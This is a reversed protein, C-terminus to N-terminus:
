NAAKILAELQAAQLTKAGDPSVDLRFTGVKISVRDGLALLEKLADSGQVLAFWAESFAAINILTLSPKLGSEVWVGDSLSLARGRVYRVGSVSSARKKDKLHRLLQAEEVADRGSTKPKAATNEKARRARKRMVREADDDAMETPAVAPASGSKTAASGGTPAHADAGRHWHHPLPRPRPRRPPRPRPQVVPIENEVVLYSTYPTVIGYKKALHIVEDKLEKTEGNLRIQDLMFGVQRHAWLSAIFANDSRKAPFSAEYEFNRSADGMAGRLRVVSDGDGRYRGVVILQGGRFIDPLAGPQNAYTKVREIDLKVDTLVPYAIQNYFAAIEAGMDESERVYASTGGHDSALKDLLHTHIDDGVGLTFIRASQANDSKAKKLIAKIDTEGVTPRGDTIFVVLHPGRGVQQSLTTGLADGIATGGAAEFGDVFATAREKNSDSASILQEDLSEVDSSFRVVNFTDDHGLRSLCWKLAEKARDLKVGTMSGSTDLVFTVAKGQIEDSNFVAKPAAMLLYYGPEGPRRHTLVHLGVDKKSVGIYLLFDRNLRTRNAEFGVIAAHEGRKSVSVKHSPSYVSKIAIPSVINVTLTMDELTKLSKGPAKLPYALKLTGDLFPLVQTYTIELKQEGNAPVPFVRAKFLGKGMWDIIGPDKVRAVIDRYIRNARGKELVEGKKMVGNVMLKFDNVVAGDPLPFVYTAELPRSTHNKFVQEVKTVAMGSNVDITVRHHKLALPPVGKESPLLVTAHATAGATLILLLAVVARLTGAVSM